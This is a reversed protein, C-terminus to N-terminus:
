IAYVVEFLQGVSAGNYTTSVTVAIDFYGDPNKALGLVQWLPQQQEAITYEGSEFAVEAKTFPGGTLDFASAFLDADIVDGALAPDYYNAPYYVGLNFAGATAADGTTLKISRINANSPVQVVRHISTADDNAANAVYGLASILRGASNFTDNRVPPVAVTNAIQTSNRNVVAM